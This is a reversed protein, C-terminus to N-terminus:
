CLNLEREIKKLTEPSIGGTNKAADLERQIAAKRAEVNDHYKASELQSHAKRLAIQQILYWARPDQKELASGAFFLHGTEYLREASLSPDQKALEALLTLVASENRTVQQKLRYWSLFQSVSCTNTEIGSEQLWCVTDALTNGVAYDAIATQREEPLTKLLADARPKDTPTM